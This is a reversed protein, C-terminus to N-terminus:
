IFLARSLRARYERVAPADAGMAAFLAVLLTRAEGGKFNKDYEAIRLLAECAADYQEDAALCVAWDFVANWDNPAATARAAAAAAGGIEKARGLLGVITKLRDREDFKAPVDIKNLADLAPAENREHLHCRALGLLALPLM